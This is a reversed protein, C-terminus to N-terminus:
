EFVASLIAIIAMLVLWLIFISSAVYFVAIFTPIFEIGIM